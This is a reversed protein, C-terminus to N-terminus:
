KGLCYLFKDSRLLLQGNSPVPTADFVSKDDLNPRALEKFAPGVALVVAGRDRSVAYLKGDALLPSAYVTGLNQVRSEYVVEGTDAKLCYAIGGHNVLYLLGDHYLPTPVLSGKKIEWLKHTKTVDGRGGGRIAMTVSARAGAIYAVDGHTTVSPCIYDQVGACTWLEKGIAPDLGLVKKEISVLLERKGGPLELLTPTCWSSNIGKVRWVEAGTTKNLAVLSQSEVSANVILLNGVLIPSAGSGWPHIKAGVERRWLEDGTLSYAFVGTRGYFVYVAKGDTVPTSSAYGHLNIQSRSYEQEPLAAKVSKDWLIKGTARDLCILHRELDEPQGVDGKGLGYGTYATLFIKDGLTIPSSSGFGPLATKWVVNSTASWTEPLGKDNSVGDGNPGRFRTWDAGTFIAISLIALAM